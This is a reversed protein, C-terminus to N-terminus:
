QRPAFNPDSKRSNFFDEMLRKTIDQNPKNQVAYVETIRKMFPQSFEVVHSFKRLALNRTHQLEEESFFRVQAASDINKDPCTSTFGIQTIGPEFQRDFYVMQFTGDVSGFGGKLYTLATHYLPEISGQLNKYIFRRSQPSRGPLSYGSSIGRWFNDRVVDTLWPLPAESDFYIDMQCTLTPWCSDARGGLGCTTQGINTMRWAVALAGKLGPDIWEKPMGFRDAFEKTYAWIFPDFFYTQKHKFTHLDEYNANFAKEQWPRDRWPTEHAPEPTTDAMVSAASMALIVAAFLSFLKGSLEPIIPFAGRINKM